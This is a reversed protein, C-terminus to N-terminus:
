NREVLNKGSRAHIGFILAEHEELSIGSTREFEYAADVYDIDAQLRM